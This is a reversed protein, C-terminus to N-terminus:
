FQMDLIASVKKNDPKIGQPMWSHGFFSVEKCKFQVRAKNFVIGKQQAREMLKVLNRDYMGESSGYVFTNDTISTVGNLGEFATNLQKQFVDQFLLTLHYSNSATNTLLPASLQSTHARRMMHYM